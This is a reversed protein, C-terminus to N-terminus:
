CWGESDDDLIVTITCCCDAAAAFFFSIKVFIVVKSIKQQSDLQHQGKFYNLFCGVGGNHINSRANTLNIIPPAEATDHPPSKQQWKKDCM